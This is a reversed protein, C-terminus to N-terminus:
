RRATERALYRLVAYVLSGDVAKGDLVMDVVADWPQLSVDVVENEDLNTPGPRLDRAVYVHCTHVMTGPLPNFRGLVEIEGAVYGTEEALERLAADQPQEGPQIGGAPLDYLVRRLPHRYQRTLVVQGDETFALVSASGASDLYHYDMEGGDPRRLRDRVVTIWNDFVVESGLVRWEQSAAGNQM